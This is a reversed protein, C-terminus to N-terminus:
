CGDGSNVKACLRQLEKDSLEMHGADHMELAVEVIRAENPFKKLAATVLKTAPPCNRDIGAEIQKNREPTQDGVEGAWHTCAEAGRIAEDVIKADDNISSKRADNNAANACGLGAVLLVMILRRFRNMTVGKENHSHISRFHCAEVIWEL